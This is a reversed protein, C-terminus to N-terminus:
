LMYSILGTTNRNDYQEQSVGYGFRINGSDYASNALEEM